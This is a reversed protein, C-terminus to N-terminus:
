SVDASLWRHTVSLRWHRCRDIVCVCVSDAHTSV